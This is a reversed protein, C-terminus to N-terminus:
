LFSFFGKLDMVLCKLQYTPKMEPPVDRAACVPHHLPVLRCCVRVLVWFCNAVCKICAIHKRVCSLCTAIYLISHLAFAPLLQSVGFVGALGANRGTGTVRFWQLLWSYGSMAAIEM